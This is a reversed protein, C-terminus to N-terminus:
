RPNLSVLIFYRLSKFPTIIFANAKWEDPVYDLDPSM